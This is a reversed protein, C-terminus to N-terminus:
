RHLHEICQMNRKSLLDGKYEDKGETAENDDRTHDSQTVQLGSWVCCSRETLRGASKQGKERM